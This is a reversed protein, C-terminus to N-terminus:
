QKKEQKPPNNLRFKKEFNELSRGLLLGSTGFQFGSSITKNCTTGKLYLKFLYNLLLLLLKLRVLIYRIVFVCLVKIKLRVCEM